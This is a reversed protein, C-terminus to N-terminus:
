NNHAGRYRAIAASIAAIVSADAAGGDTVTIAAPSSSAESSDDLWNALACMGRLTFILITLFVFVIGMGLLMLEVVATMLDSIVMMEGQMVFTVDRSKNSEGAQARVVTLGLSLERPM